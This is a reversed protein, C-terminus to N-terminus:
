GEPFSEHFREAVRYLIRLTSSLAAVYKSAMESRATEYDAVSSCYFTSQTDDVYATDAYVDELSAAMQLPYLVTRWGDQKFCDEAECAAIARYLLAIHERFPQLRSFLCTPKGCNCIFTEKAPDLATYKLRHEGDPSFGFRGFERLLNLKVRFFDSSDDTMMLKM